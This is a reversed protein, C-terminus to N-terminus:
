VGFFGGDARPGVAADALQQIAPLVAYTHVTTYISEIEGVDLDTAAGVNVFGLGGLDRGGAFDGGLQYWGVRLSSGSDIAFHASVYKRLRKATPEVVLCQMEPIGLKRAAAISDIRLTVPPALEQVGSAVAKLYPEGYGAAKPVTENFSEIVSLDNIRIM